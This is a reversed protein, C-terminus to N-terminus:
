SKVIDVRQRGMAALAITFKETKLNKKLCGQCFESMCRKVESVLM